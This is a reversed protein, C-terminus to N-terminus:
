GLGAAVRGWLERPETAQMATLLVTLAAYAFLGPGLVVDTIGASRVVAILIGLMFVEVMSWRAVFRWVHMVAVAQPVRRAAVLPLLVWLQLAIVVLPFVFATAFALLAVLHEGAAWTWLTAEYLSAVSDVGRLELTVIPSLSAIVFVVAAALALALQGDVGMRHGRALTAGCRRCRAKQDPALRVRAYVWDCEPCVILAPRPAPHTPNPM